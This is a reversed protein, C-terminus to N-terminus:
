PNVMVYVKLPAGDSQEFHRLQEILRDDLLYERALLMVGSAVLDRTLMMGPKLDRTRLMQEKSPDLEPKGVVQLFADLTNSDYRKNRGSEMNRVADQRPMPKGTMSGNVLAEFDLAVSLIRSGVPIQMAALRDPYGLGDFREHQSRIYRAPNQLHELSMMAAQGKAPYKGYVMREELTMHAYPKDILNDPLGIKGLGHLLGAVFIDQVEQDSVKTQQAIQRALEAVARAHGALKGGRMDILTSFVKISALFGKKLRDHVETLENMTMELEATRERVRIELSANLEQLQQNQSIVRANLASKERELRKVALADQVAQVLEADDWPKALYRSIHARNIAEITSQIDAYGTLLMRIVQPWRRLVEALFEAGNMAPMRMDSIVLDVPEVELVALGLAGSEATLIRLGTGRLVRRLASLINAEDDVCLVTLQPADALVPESM